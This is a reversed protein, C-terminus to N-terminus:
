LPTILNINTTIFFSTSNLLGLFMHLHLDNIHKPKDVVYGYNVITIKTYFLLM